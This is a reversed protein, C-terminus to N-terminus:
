LFPSPLPALAAADRGVAGLLARRASRRRSRAVHRVGVALQLLQLLRRAAFASAAAASPLFFSSSFFAFFSSSFGVRRPRLRLALLHHLNLRHLLQQLEADQRHPSAATHFSKPM